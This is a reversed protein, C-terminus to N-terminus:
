VYTSPTPKRPIIFPLLCEDQWFHSEALDQTGPVLDTSLLHQFFLRHPLIQVLMSNATLLM